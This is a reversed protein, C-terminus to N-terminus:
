WRNRTLLVSTLKSKKFLFSTSFTGSVQSWILFLKLHFYILNFCVAWSFLSLFFVWSCLCCHLSKQPSLPWPVYLLSHPSYITISPSQSPTTFVSYLICIIHPSITSRFVQMIKNLLIVGIFGILLFFCKFTARNHNTLNKKKKFLPLLMKLIHWVRPPLFRGVSISNM